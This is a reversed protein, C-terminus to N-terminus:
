KLSLLSRTGIQPRISVFFSLRHHNTINIDIKEDIRIDFKSIRYVDPYRNRTGAYYAQRPATILKHHITLHPSLDASKQLYPRDASGLRM